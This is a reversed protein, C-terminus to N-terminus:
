YNAVVEGGNRTGLNNFTTADISYSITRVSGDAMLAVIGSSHASGFDYGSVGGQSDKQPNRGVAQGTYRVVDPDWGDGWGCDDHWDGTFYNRVDLRKESVLLTSSTGDSIGTMTVKAGYWIGNSWLGGRVIVGRYNATTWTSTYTGWTDGMWYQDWSTPTDAPTASAYDMLYRGGQSSTPGAVRRSPCFYISPSGRVRLPDVNTAAGVGALRALNDGEVHPLIYYPWSGRVDWPCFGGPPMIGNADHYGHIAVGIQKLNNGCKMRAAAERVKQVAPLLLGILIAIIAIVVLLEILTFARARLRPFPVPRLM